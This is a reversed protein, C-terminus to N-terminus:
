YGPALGRPIGRLRSRCSLVKTPTRNAKAFAWGPVFGIWSNWARAIRRRAAADAKLASTAARVSAKHNALTKATVGMQAHHLQSIPIRGATWRAPLLELPKCLGKAVVRLFCTWHRRQDRTLDPAVAVAALTLAFSAEILANSNNIEQM